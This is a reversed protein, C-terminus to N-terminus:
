NLLHQVHCGDASFSGLRKGKQLPVGARPRRKQQVPQRGQADDHHEAEHHEVTCAIGGAIEAKPVAEMVDFRLNEAEAKPQQHHDGKGIHIVAKQAFHDPRPVDDAKHQQHQHQEARRQVAAAAPQADRPLRHLDGLDCLKFHDQECGVKRGLGRLQFLQVGAAAAPHRHPRPELLPQHPLQDQGQQRQHQHHRQENHFGVHGADHQGGSHHAGDQQQAAVAADDCPHASGGTHQQQFRHQLVDVGDGVQLATEVAPRLVQGLHGVLRQLAKVGDAGAAHGAEAKAVADFLLEPQGFAGVIEDEADDALLQAEDPRHQNDQQEHEEEHLPEPQREVSLVPETRQHADADHGLDRPLHEAVDRDHGVGQGVGADRQGEEGGAAGAQDQQQGLHADHDVNAAVALPDPLFAAACSSCSARRFSFVM